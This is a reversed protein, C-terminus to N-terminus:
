VHMVRFWHCVLPKFVSHEKNLYTDRLCGVSFLLWSIRPMWCTLGASSAWCIVRSMPFVQPTNCATISVQRSCGGPFYRMMFSGLWTLAYNATWTWLQPTLLQGTHIIVYNWVQQGCTPQSWITCCGVHHRPHHCHSHTQPTMLHFNLLHFNQNQVWLNTCEVYHPIYACESTIREDLCILLTSQGPCKNTAIIIIITFIDIIVM